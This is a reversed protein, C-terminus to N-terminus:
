SSSSRKSRPSVLTPQARALPAPPRADEEETWPGKTRPGDGDGSAAKETVERKRREQPVVPTETTTRQHSPPALARTGRPEIREGRGTNRRVNQAAAAFRSAANAGGLYQEDGAADAAGGAPEVRGHAAGAPGVTPKSSKAGNRRNSSIEFSGRHAEFGCAVRQPECTPSGLM